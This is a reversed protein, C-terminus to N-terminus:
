ERLAYYRVQQKEPWLPANGNNGNDDKGAFWDDVADQIAQALSDTRESECMTDVGIDELFHRALDRCAPDYRLETEAM